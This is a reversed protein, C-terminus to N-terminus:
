RQVYLASVADDPERLRLEQLLELAGLWNAALYTDIARSFLKLSEKKRPSIDGKEGILEYIHPCIPKLPGAALEIRGARPRAAIAKRGALRGARRTDDADAAHEPFVRRAIDRNPQPRRRYRDLETAGTRLSLSFDREAARSDQCHRIFACLHVPRIKEQDHGVLLAGIM